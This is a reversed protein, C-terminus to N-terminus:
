TVPAKSSSPNGAATRRRRYTLAPLVVDDVIETITAHDVPGTTLHRGLVLAAGASARTPTIADEHIDGRAAARALADAVLRQRPEVLLAVIREWMEPRRERELLLPALIQGVPTTLGDALDGLFAILEDRLDGTALLRTGAPHDGVEAENESHSLAALLLHETDRWRRYLSAKGAGASAAISEFTLGNMGHSALEALTAAFIASELDTGRRRTLTTM